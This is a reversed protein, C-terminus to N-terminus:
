ALRVVFLGGDLKVRFFYRLTNFHFFLINRTRKTMLFNYLLTTLNLYDNGLLVLSRTFPILEKMEGLFRMSKKGGQYDMAYDFFSPQM